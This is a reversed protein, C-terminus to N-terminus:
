LLLEHCVNIKQFLVYWAIINQFNLPNKICLIGKSTTIHLTILLFWLRLKKCNKASTLVKQFFMKGYFIVYIAILNKSSTVHLTKCRYSWPFFTTTNKEIRTRDPPFEPSYFEPFKVIKMVKWSNYIIKKRGIITTFEGCSICPQAGNTGRIIWTQKKNDRDCFSFLYRCLNIEDSFNFQCWNISLRSM